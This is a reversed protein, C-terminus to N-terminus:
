CRPEGGLHVFTFTGGDAVWWMTAPRSACRRCPGTPQHMDDEKVDGEARLELRARKKNPPKTERCVGCNQHGGLGPYPKRRQRGYPKM